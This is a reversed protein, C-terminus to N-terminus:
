FITKTGAFISRKPKLGQLKETTKTGAFIDRKPKPRQGWKQSLKSVHCMIILDM